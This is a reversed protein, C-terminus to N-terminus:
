HSSNLRTSKRDQWKEGVEQDHSNNEKATQDQDAALKFRLRQRHRLTDADWRGEFSRRIGVSRRGARHIRSNLLSDARWGGSFQFSEQLLDSQKHHRSLITQWM